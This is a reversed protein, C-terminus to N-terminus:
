RSFFLSARSFAAPLRATLAGLLAQNLCEATRGALVGKVRQGKIACASQRPLFFEIEWVNSCLVSGGAPANQNWFRLLTKNAPTGTVADTEERPLSLFRPGAKLSLCCSLAPNGKRM